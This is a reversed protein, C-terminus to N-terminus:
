DKQSPPVQVFSSIIPPSFSQRTKAVLNDNWAGSTVPGATAMCKASWIRLSKPFWLRYDQRWNGAQDGLKDVHQGPKGTNLRYVTLWRTGKLQRIHVTQRPLQNRKNPGTGKKFCLNAHCTSKTKDRGTPKERSYKCCPVRLLSWGSDRSFEIRSVPNPCYDERGKGDVERWM